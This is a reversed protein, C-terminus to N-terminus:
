ETLVDHTYSPKRFGIKGGSYSITLSTAALRRRLRRPPPARDARADAAGDPFVRMKSAGRKLDYRLIMPAEGFIMHMRRLKLLIDVMCQFGDVRIFADGYQALAEKLAGARYARYGCTYDRVGQTPFVARCLLSAGWSVFRRTLSVGYVHSGPQSRSAIVVDHGEKVMRVMRLILGPNHTDDSDMTVIVDHNSASQAALYIGDRITPGLGQNREHRSVTMPLQASFERLIEATRDKSGDDVM